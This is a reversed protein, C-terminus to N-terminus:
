LLIRAAGGSNGPGLLKSKMVVVRRTEIVAGKRSGLLGDRYAKTMSWTVKALQAHLSEELRVSKARPTSPKM